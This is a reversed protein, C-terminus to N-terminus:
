ISEVKALLGAVENSLDARKSSMLEITSIESSVVDLAPVLVGEVESVLSKKETEAKGSISARLEEKFASAVRRVKEKTEFRKLPLSLLGVYGGIGAFLLSLVDDFGSNLFHAGVSGVAASGAVLSVAYRASERLEEELLLEAAEIKFGDIITAPDGVLSSPIDEDDDAQAVVGLKEATAM